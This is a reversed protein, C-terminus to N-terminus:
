ARRARKKWFVLGSVGMAFLTLTGPEPTSSVTIDDLIIKQSGFTEFAIKDVNEFNVQYLDTSTGSALISTSYILENNLYGYISIPKPGSTSAPNYWAGLYVSILTFPDGPRGFTDFSSDLFTVDTNGSSPRSVDGFTAVPFGPTVLLWPNFPFNSWEFGGYNGMVERFFGINDAPLNEFDLTQTQAYAGRSAVLLTLAAVPLIRM